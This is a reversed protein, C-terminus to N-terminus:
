SLANPYTKETDPGPLDQQEKRVYLCNNYCLFHNSNGHKLQYSINNSIQLQQFLAQVRAKQYELRAMKAAIM